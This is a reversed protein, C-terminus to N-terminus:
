NNFCRKYPNAIATKKRNKILEKILWTPSNVFKRAINILDAKKHKLIKNAQRLNTIMGTTRTIVGTKAKIKKALHVQYGPKFKINTKSLIGGSTVCVYDIGIKRLKQVLYICDKITSGDPLWDKGNVRASLIKKAPWVKRVEKFIECLFRCRNELNGGYIDERKNSIPSFFEHLLYGHAMHVELCDFGAKNALIASTKFQNVIKKIKRISLKRPVPWGKDRRIASPAYTVWGGNSKKLPTNSKEWPIKASGKRGSHSIQIGVPVKSFSKIHSLLRKFSIQNKKNILTLDKLSIRGEKSVATSELMLMGAGSQALKQLHGYHWLSPNGNEASYQCMSGVTIRNPLIIGKIKVPRLLKM